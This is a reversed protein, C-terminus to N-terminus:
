VALQAIWERAQLPDTFFQERGTGYLSQYKEIKTADQHVHAAATCRIGGKLGLRLESAEEFMELYGVRWGYQALTRPVIERFRKHAEVNIATFGFLDVLIKFKTGQSIADLATYLSTKWKEIDAITADGSLRTVLLQEHAMWLSDLNKM